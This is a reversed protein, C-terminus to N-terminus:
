KWSLPVLYCYLQTGWMFSAQGNSVNRPKYHAAENIKDFECIEYKIKNLNNVPKVFDNKKDFFDDNIIENMLQNKMKVSGLLFTFCRGLCVSLVVSCFVVLESTSLKFCVSFFKTVM